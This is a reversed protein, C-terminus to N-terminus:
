SIAWNLEIFGEVSKPIEACDCDGQPDYNGVPRGVRGLGPPSTNGLM